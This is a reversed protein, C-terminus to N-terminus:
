LLFDEPVYMLCLTRQYLLMYCVFFSKIFYVENFYFHRSLSLCHSSFSVVPTPQSFVNGFWMILSLSAVSFVCLVRLVWCYSICGLPLFYHAFSIFPCKVLFSTGIPFWCALSAWESTVLYICILVVILYREMGILIALVFAICILRVIGLVPSIISCSSHVYM